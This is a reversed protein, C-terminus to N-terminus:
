PFRFVFGTSANIITTPGINTPQNFESSNVATVSGYGLELARFDVHKGLRYDVGVSVGYEVNTKHIPSLASRSRGSGVQPMIYPRWRSGPSPKYSIRVGVMFSNLSSGSNGHEVVDRMDIGLTAKGNQLFDYYVGYDIGGFIRSTNGTGLFAFPGSDANSSFRGVIPNLYIGFAKSGDSPPKATVPQGVDPNKQALISTAALIAFVFVLFRLKM